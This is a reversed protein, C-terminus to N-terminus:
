SHAKIKQLIFSSLDQKKVKFVEEIIRYFDDDTRGARLLKFVAEKGGYEEMAVKILLGGISYPPGNRLSIAELNLIDVPLLLEENKIRKDLDEILGNIDFGMSGGFYTAIGEDFYLHISRNHSYIHVIEHPHYFRENGSFLIKNYSDTLGGKKKELHFMYDNFDFGRFLEIADTDDLSLITFSPKKDFFVDMKHVFATISDIQNKEIPKQEKTANLLTIREELLTGENFAAKLNVAFPALFKVTKNRNVAFLHFSGLLKGTPKNILSLYIKYKTESIKQIGKLFLTNDKNSYRLYPNLHYGPFRLYIFNEEDWYEKLNDNSYSDELLIYANLKEIIQKSIGIDYLEFASALQITRKFEKTSQPATTAVTTKEEKCSFFLLLILTCNLLYCLRM